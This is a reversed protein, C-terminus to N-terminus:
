PASSGCRCSRSATSGTSTAVRRTRSRTAGPIPAGILGGRAGKEWEAETPLRYQVSPSTLHRGLEEAEQWSVCVMPKLDYGWPTAPADRSPTGFPSRPAVAPRPSPGSATELRPATEDNGALLPAPTAVHASADEAGAESWDVPLEHPPLHAHWDSACTTQNECYQLRIKNEQHLQFLTRDFLGPPEGRAVRPADM